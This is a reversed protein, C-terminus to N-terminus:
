GNLQELEWGQRLGLIILVPWYESNKFVLLKLSQLIKHNSNIFVGRQLNVYWLCFILFSHNLYVLTSLNLIDLSTLM